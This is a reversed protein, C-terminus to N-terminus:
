VTFLQSYFSTAYAETMSALFDCVVRMQYEPEEGAEALRERFDYPLLRHAVLRGGSDRDSLKRFIRRIIGVGKFEHVEIQPSRFILVRAAAKLTNSLRMNEEPITLDYSYRPTAGTGAKRVFACGSLLESHITSSTWDKLVRRREREGSPVKVLREYLHMALGAISSDTYGIVGSSEMDAEIEAARHAMERFDLLGALFSDEFDDVSYAVADVWDVIQAELSSEGFPQGGKIWEFARIPLGMRRSMVPEPPLGPKFFGDLTARTLNLGGQSQKPELLCLIRLNQSNADFGGWAEMLEDLAREGAHGFPPHGLDHGLCIAEVLDQDPAIDGIAEACLGRGLQAVELTHTLRTRTVDELGVQLVQTKGQLRRFAASHIIRAKDIEFVSRREHRDDSVADRWFRETDFQGYALQKAM